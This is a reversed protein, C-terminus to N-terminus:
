TFLEEIEEAEAEIFRVGDEDFGYDGCLLALEILGYQSLSYPYEKGDTTYLSGKRIVSAYVDQPAQASKIRPKSGEARLMSTLIELERGSRNGVIEFLSSLRSDTKESMSGTFTPFVYNTYTRWNSKLQRECKISAYRVGVHGDRKRQIYELFFQPFIYEPKFTEKRNRVKISCAALLPWYLLYEEESFWPEKRFEDLRQPIRSLDIIKASPDRPKFMAVQFSDFSPRGMEMWCTYVSTGLYLCPLGPSSYRQSTVIGRKNLPIHFMQHEDFDGEDDDNIRARYLATDGITSTLLPSEDLGLHAVANSFNKYALSHIGKLYNRMTNACSRRFSKVKDVTDPRAGNAELDKIYSTLLNSLEVKMDDKDFSIPIRYAQNSFISDPM